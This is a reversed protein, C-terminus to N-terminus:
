NEEGTNKLTAHHAALARTQALVIELTPSALEPSSIPTTTSHYSRALAIAKDANSTTVTNEAKELTNAILRNITAIKIGAEEILLSLQNRLSDLTATRNGLQASLHQIRDIAESGNEYESMYNIYGSVGLLSAFLGALAIILATAAEAETGELWIRTAMVAAAAVTIGIGVMQELLIRARTSGRASIAGDANKFVRHRRGFTRMVYGYLLTGLLAFVAATIGLIITAGDGAFLLRLSVNFISFMGLLFIPYDVMLLLLEKGKTRTRRILHKVSGSATEEDIQDRLSNHHDQAEHTSLQEGNAGIIPDRELQAITDTILNIRAMVSKIGKILTEASGTCVKEIDHKARAVRRARTVTEAPTLGTKPATIRNSESVMTVTNIV